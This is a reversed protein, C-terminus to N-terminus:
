VQNLSGGDWGEGLPPLLWLAIAHWHSAEEQGFTFALCREVALHM